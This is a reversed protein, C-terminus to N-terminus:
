KDVTIKFFKLFGKEVDCFELTGKGARMLGKGKKGRGIDCFIIVKAM